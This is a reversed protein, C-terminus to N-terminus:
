ALRRLRRRPRSPSLRKERKPGSCPSATPRPSKRNAATADGASRMSGGAALDRPAALVPERQATNAAVIAAVERYADAVRRDRPALRLALALHREASPADRKVEWEFRAAARLWDVAAPVDLTAGLEIVERMRAYALTAGTVDGLKERWEAELARSEALRPSPATVQRVRAIAQPLDGAKALIKALDVLADFQPEARAEGLTIARSLLASAREVRGSELLARGLGATATADDPLYRLAREFLRGADRQYGLALLRRAAERCAEHRAASGAVSAELHEADALAGRVDGIGLRADFRQWRVSLLGPCRAVAEDLARLRAPQDSEYGAQECWLLAALPAYEEDRTAASLASCAGDTDGIRALLTAGVAGADGVAMAEVLISLAAEARGSAYTDIEAILRALEPHRPARELASVYGARAADLDGRALHDDAAHTLAALEVARLVGDRNGPPPFSADLDVLVVDGEGDLAACRVGLATPARAGVAPMVERVIAAGVGSLTAVRGERTLFRGAATDLVHLAVALSPGDLEAGRARAVVCRAADEVPAWLLDFAVAGRAGVLGVGVGDAVRWVSVPRVLGGLAERLRRDLWRSLADLRVRIGLHELKGRRHRFVKVGGSLDVPFKLNPLTVGLRYVELPGLDVSEYLELGLAGRAVTLRLPVRPDADPPERPPVPTGVTVRISRAM